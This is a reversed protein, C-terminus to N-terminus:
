LKVKQKAHTHFKTAWMSPPVFASSTESYPESSSIQAKTSCHPLLTTCFIVYNSSFAGAKWWIHNPRGFRSSHSLRRMYCTHPLPSTCVPNQQLFRLSTSWKSSRPTAPPIINCHVKLFWAPLMFQVSKTWFLSLHSASTFATIFRRTGYFPSIENSASFRNTEWSPSQEM